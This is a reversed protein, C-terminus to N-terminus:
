PGAHKLIYALADSGSLIVTQNSYVLFGDASRYGSKIPKARIMKPHLKIIQCVYMMNHHSLAVYNGEEIPQGIIDLHEIVEKEM